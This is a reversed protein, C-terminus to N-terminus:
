NVNMSKKYIIRNTEDRFVIVYKVNPRLALYCNGKEFYTTQDTPIRKNFDKKNRIESALYAQVLITNEKGEM